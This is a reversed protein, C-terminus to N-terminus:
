GRWGRLRVDNRFLALSGTTRQARTILWMESGM